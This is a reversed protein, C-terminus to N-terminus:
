DGRGDVIAEALYAFSPLYARSCAPYLNRLLQSSALVVHFRDHRGEAPRDGVEIEPHV